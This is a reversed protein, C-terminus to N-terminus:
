VGAGDDARWCIAPLRFEASRAGEGESRTIAADLQHQLAQEVWSSWRAADDAHSGRPATWDIVLQRAEPDSRWAVRVVEQDAGPAADPVLEVALDHFALAMLGATRGTLLVPPGDLAAGEGVKIGFRLLEDAVLTLLDVCRAPDRAIAAQVHLYASLRGDLVAAYEDVTEAGDASRRAIARVVALLNRLDHQDERRENQRDDQAQELRALAADREREAEALAFRLVSINEQMASM